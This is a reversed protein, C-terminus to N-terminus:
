RLAFDFNKFKDCTAQGGFVDCQFKVDYRARNAVVDVACPSLHAREVSLFGDCKNRFSAQDVNEGSRSLGVRTDGGVEDLNARAMLAEISRNHPGTQRDSRLRPYEYRDNRSHSPSITSTRFVPGLMIESDSVM